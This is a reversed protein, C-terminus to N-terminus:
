HREWAATNFKKANRLHIKLQKTAAKADRKRLAEIITKHEEFSSSSRGFRFSVTTILLTKRILPELSEKLIRNGSAECIKLHFQSDAERRDYVSAKEGLENLRDSDRDLQDLDEESIWRVAETIACPELLLRIDYTDQLDRPSLGSVQWGRRPLRELLGDGRLWEAARRLTAPNVGLEIALPREKVIEGPGLDGRLIKELLFEYTSDTQNSFEFETTDHVKLKTPLAVVVPHRSEDLEVLGEAILKEIAKNITTRSVGLETAIHRANFREGVKREQNALQAKLHKSVKDSLSQRPLSEAM